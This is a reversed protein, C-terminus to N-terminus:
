KLVVERTYSHAVAAKYMGEQIPATGKVAIENLATEADMRTVNSSGSRLAAITSNLGLMQVLFPHGKALSSIYDRTEVPFKVEGLLSAEARDFLDYIEENTMPEVRVCGGTLQRAVSEHDGILETVNTSVGVLAFKVKYNLSKMLSALGSKDKVRDFEDVVILIGSQAIRSDLLSKLCNQFIAYVDPSVSERVEEVNSKAAASGGIETIKLSLSSSGESNIRTVKFPLWDALGESTTLLRAILEEISGISDDCQIYVPVFDFDEFPKHTLREIVSAHGQAMLMMQHALSSKGIGRNGYIMMHGGPIALGAAVEDLERQRGAFRDPDEIVKAPTFASAPNM